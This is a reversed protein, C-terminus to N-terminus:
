MKCLLVQLKNSQMDFPPLFKSILLKLQACNLGKMLVFLSFVFMMDDESCTKFFLGSPIYDTGKRQVGM